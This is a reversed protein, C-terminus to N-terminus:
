WDNYYARNNYMVILLPIQHKAAMWPAGADYM